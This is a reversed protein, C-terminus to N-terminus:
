GTDVIKKQIDHYAFFTYIANPHVKIGKRTLLKSLQPIDINPNNIYEVLIMVAEADSPISFEQVLTLSAKQDKYREESFYVFRGQHRERRIGPTASLRPFVSSNVPLELVQAIQQASLGAQSQEVLACMTEILNGHESFLIKQYRWIGDHDFHPIKPLTYYRGNMNISTFASWNKLKRRATIASSGLMSVLQEITLVKAKLFRKIVGQEDM